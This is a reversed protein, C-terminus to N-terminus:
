MRSCGLLFELSAEPGGYIIEVAIGCRAAASASNQAVGSKERTEM